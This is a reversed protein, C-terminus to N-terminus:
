QNISVASGDIIIQIIEVFSLKFHEFHFSFLASDNNVIQKLSENKPFIGLSDYQICLVLNVLYIIGLM